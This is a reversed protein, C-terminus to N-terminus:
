LVRRHQWLHVGLIALFAGGTVIHASTSKVGLAVISVGLAALMTRNQLLRAARNVNKEAADPMLSQAAAAFIKVVEKELKDAGEAATEGAKAVTPHEAIKKVLARAEDTPLNLADATKKLLCSKAPAVAAVPREGESPLTPEADVNDAKDAEAVEDAAQAVYMAAYIEITGLITEGTTEAENWEILLSGVRPNVEAKTVGPMAMIMGTVRSVTEAEMKFMMPHRLRVRGPLLSRVCDNIDAM